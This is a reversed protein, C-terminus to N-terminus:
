AQVCDPDLRIHFPIVYTIIAAVLAISRGQASSGSVVSFKIARLLRTDGEILESVAATFQAFIPCRDVCSALRTSAADRHSARGSIMILLVLIIVGLLTCASIHGHCVSLFVGPGLVAKTSKGEKFPLACKTTIIEAVRIITIFIGDHYEAKGPSM